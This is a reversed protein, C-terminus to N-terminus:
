ELYYYKKCPSTRRTAHNDIDVSNYCVLQNTAFIQLVQQKAAQRDNNQVLLTHRGIGESNM